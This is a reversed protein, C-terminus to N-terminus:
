SKRNWNWIIPRKQIRGKHLFRGVLKQASISLLIEADTLRPKPPRQHPSKHRRTKPKRVKEEIETNRDAKHIAGM